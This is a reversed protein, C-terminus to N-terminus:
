CLWFSFYSICYNENVVLNKTHWCLWYGHLFAWIFKSFFFETRIKLCFVAFFFSFFYTFTTSVSSFVKSFYLRLLPSIFTSLLFPALSSFIPFPSTSFTTNSNSIKLTKIRFHNLLFRPRQIDLRSSTHRINTLSIM